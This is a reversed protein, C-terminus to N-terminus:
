GCSHTAKSVYKAVLPGPTIQPLPTAAKLAAATMSIVALVDGLFLPDAMRTRAMLARRWRADMQPLLHNLQALLSETELLATLLGAYREQPWRGRLSLEKAANAHRVGMKSLKTRAKLLDKRNKQYAEVSTHNHPDNAVGLIQCLIRGSTL